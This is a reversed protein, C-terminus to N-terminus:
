VFWLGLTEDELSVRILDGTNCKAGVSLCQRGARIVFRYPQPVNCTPLARGDELHVFNILLNTTMQEVRIRVRVRVRVRVWATVRVRVTVRDRVRVRVRVRVMFRVRVRVRVM